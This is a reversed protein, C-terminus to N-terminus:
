LISLILLYFWVIPINALSIFLSIWHSRVTQKKILKIIIEILLILLLISNIICATVVFFYGLLVLDTERKILYLLLLFTGIIFSIAATKRVWEDIFNTSNNFLELFKNSEKNM